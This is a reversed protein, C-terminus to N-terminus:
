KLGIITEGLEDITKKVFISAELLTDHTGTDLWSFTNDLLEVQLHHDELYLNNLDTIELEGRPSPDLSKTKEVVSSDYIYLGTAIWNSKPYSPKEEISIVKKDNDFEIVGFRSPDKVKYGFITSGINNDIANRIISNISPGFFLNDGLILVSNSDGLWKESILFAEAIGNPEDQIEYNISVGFDSGNNLLRKFLHQDDKTTIIMIDKIGANILTSLPYYIMPQNYIPLLQKSIVKTIPHLRTGAGGALIIGKTHLNNNM